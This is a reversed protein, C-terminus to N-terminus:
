HRVSSANAEKTKKKDIYMEQDAREFVSLPDTDIDPDYVSYGAAASVREWPEADPATMLAASRKRFDAILEDASDLDRGRLLIVFEDGGYRFVPSHTFVDCIISCIEKIAEDGHDHGYNDNIRKLDNLDIVGIGFCAVHQVIDSRLNAMAADYSRKNRVGTLSDVYANKEMKEAYEKASDLENRTSMLDKIHDNIDREMKAISNALTEIEDGTHIDLDSFKHLDSDNEDADSYYRVSAESLKNIPKVIFADVLRIAAFASLAALATLILLVIAIFRYQQAIIEDVSYDLSAYAVVQGHSDYIPMAATVIRGGEDDTGTLIDFGSEIDGDKKFDTDYLPELTGPAWYNDHAADVLYVLRGTAIDPWTIYICEVHSSDQIKRLANRLSIFEHTQQVYSYNSLYETYGDQDEQDSTRIEAESISRYQKLVERKDAKVEDLNVSSAVSSALDTCYTSYESRIMRQTGNSFLIVSAISIVSVILILTLMIKQKLSLRLWINMDTLM